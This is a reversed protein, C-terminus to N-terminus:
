TVKEQLEKMHDFNQTKFSLLRVREADIQKIEDRCNAIAKEAVSLQQQTYLLEKRLVTERKEAESVQEWLSTNCNLQKKLLAM